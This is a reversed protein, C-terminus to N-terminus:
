GISRWASPRVFLSYSMEVDANALKWRPSGDAHQWQRLSAVDIEDQKSDFAPYPPLMDLVNPEDALYGVLKARQQPSASKSAARIAPTQCFAGISGYSALSLVFISMRVKKM